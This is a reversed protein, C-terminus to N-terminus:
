ELTRGQHSEILQKAVNAQEKDEPKNATRTEIMVDFIYEEYEEDWIYAQLAVSEDQSVDYIVEFETERKQEGTEWTRWIRCMINGGTNVVAGGQWGDPVDVPSEDFPEEYGLDRLFEGWSTQAM